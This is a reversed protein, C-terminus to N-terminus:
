FQSAIAVGSQHKQLAQVVQVETLRSKKMTKSNLPIEISEFTQM